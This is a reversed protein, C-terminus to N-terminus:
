WGPGKGDESSTEMPVYDIIVREVPRVELVHPDEDQWPTKYQYETAGESYHTRYTKGDYSFILEREVTWRGHGILKDSIIEGIDGWLVGLMFRRDFMGARSM